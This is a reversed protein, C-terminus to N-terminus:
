AKRECCRQLTRLPPSRLQAAVTHPPQTRGSDEEKKVLLLGQPAAVDHPVIHRGRQGPRIGALTVDALPVVVVASAIM